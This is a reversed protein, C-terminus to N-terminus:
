LDPYFAKPTALRLCDFRCLSQCSLQSRQSAKKRIPTILQIGRAFLREFLAQSLYGRDGFLKGWLGRTMQPLPKRDDVNAPPCCSLLEGRDNILLHLKFGYLYEM